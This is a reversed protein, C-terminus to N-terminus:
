GPLSTKCTGFLYIEASKPLSKGWQKANQVWLAGWFSPIVGVKLSNIESSRFGISMFKKKFMVEPHTSKPFFQGPSTVATKRRFILSKYFFNCFNGPPSYGGVQLDHAVRRGDHVGHSGWIPWGRGSRRGRNPEPGKWRRVSVNGVSWWKSISCSKNSM